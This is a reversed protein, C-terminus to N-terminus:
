GAHPFIIATRYDHHRYPRYIDSDDHRLRMTIESFASATKVSILSRNRRKPCAPGYPVTPRGTSEPLGYRPYGTTMGPFIGVSESLRTNQRRAAGTQLRTLRYQSFNHLEM